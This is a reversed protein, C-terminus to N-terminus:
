NPIRFSPGPARDHLALVTSRVKFSQCDHNKAVAHGATLVIAGVAVATLKVRLAHIPLTM